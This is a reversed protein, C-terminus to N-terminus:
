HQETDSEESVDAESAGWGSPHAPDPQSERGRRAGADRATVKRRDQRYGWVALDLAVSLVACAVLGLLVWCTVM